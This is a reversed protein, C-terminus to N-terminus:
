ETSQLPRYPSADEFFHIYTYTYPKWPPVTTFFGGALAPSALFASEIGPNPLAGPTPFPMM